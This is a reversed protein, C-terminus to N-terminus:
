KFNGEVLADIEPILPRFFSKLRNFSKESYAYQVILDIAREKRENKLDLQAGTALLIKIMELHEPYPENRKDQIMADICYDITEYLPLGNDINVEAGKAIIYSLMEPNDSNIAAIIPKVDAGNKENIDVGEEQILEYVKEFNSKLIYSNLDKM